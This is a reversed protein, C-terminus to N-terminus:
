RVVGEGTVTGVVPVVAIEPELEVIVIGRPIPDGFRYTNDWEFDDVGIRQAIADQAAKFSAIMNDQDRRRKDPPHFTITAKVKGRMRPVRDIICITAVEESYAEKVRYKKKWGAKRNPNLASPPYPIRLTTM